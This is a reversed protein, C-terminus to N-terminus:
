NLMTWKMNADKKIIGAIEMRTLLVNLEQANFGTKEALESASLANGGMILCLRQMLGDASKKVEQLPKLKLAEMLGGISFVALGEGKEAQKLCGKSQPRDIDGVLVHVDRGYEVTFDATILAGSKEPAEVVVTAESMGAIIRNRELYRYKYSDGYQAYESVLTGGNALIMEALRMNCAPTINQLGGALVAVTPKKCKVAAFHARADIGFALGSVVVGGNLAIGEGIQFAYKEGYATMRRTGVVAIHRLKGNLAAGKRYLAFPADTVQRLLDPYEGSSRTIMFIDAEYLRSYEEEIDMKRRLEMIQGSCNEGLGAKLFEENSAKEWAYRWDGFFYFIRKQLLFNAGPLLNFAHIFKEM